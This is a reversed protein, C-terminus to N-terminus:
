FDLYVLCIFVLFSFLVQVQYILIHDKPQDAWPIMESELPSEWWPDQYNELVRTPDDPDLKGDLHPLPHELNDYAVLQVFEPLWGMYGILACRGLVYIIERKLDM